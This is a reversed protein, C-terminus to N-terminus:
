PYYATLTRARLGEGAMEVRVRRLEGRVTRPPPEYVLLYQSRLDEEIRWTELLCDEQTM